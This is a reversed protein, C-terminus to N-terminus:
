LRNREYEPKIAVPNGDDDFVCVAESAAGVGHGEHQDHCPKCEYSLLEWNLSVMPDRINQQTLMVKHHVIYGLREHCVECMGGDIRIREQIYGDRCCEWDHGNYFQKAWDKAMFFALVM